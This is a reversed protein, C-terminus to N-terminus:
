YEHWQGHMEFLTKVYWFLTVMKLTEKQGIGSRDIKCHQVFKKEGAAWIEDSLHQACRWQKLRFLDEKQFICTPPITVKPKMTVLQM